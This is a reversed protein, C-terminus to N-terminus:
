NNSATAMVQAETEASCPGAILIPQGKQALLRTFYTDSVTAM